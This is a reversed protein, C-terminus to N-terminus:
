EDPWNEWLTHLSYGTAFVALGIWLPWLGLVVTIYFTALVAAAMLLGSVTAVAIAVTTGEKEEINACAEGFKNLMQNIKGM